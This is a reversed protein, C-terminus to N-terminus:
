YDSKSRLRALVPLAVWLAVILALVAVGAAAADGTGLVTATITFTVGVIALGLLLMGVLALRHALMVTEKRRHQRFLARHVVVPAQLFVTASISTAATFLYVAREVHSLSGFRQQFPLTLLFGTLLQVGTQIVRVEQLLESWNRDLRQIMTENRGTNDADGREPAAQGQGAPRNESADPVRGDQRAPLLVPLASPAAAGEANGNAGDARRITLRHARV